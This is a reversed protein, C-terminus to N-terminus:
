VDRDLPNAVYKYQYDVVGTSPVDTPPIDIILDPEGLAGWVSQPGAIGQLPDDGEGRPAGADIWSVLSQLQERSLSRDNAWHGVQPDAHWPPMRKNMLVERIMLSFGRVMDYGTMAWPGIGGERHCSVCNDALIPAVTDAYSIQAGDHATYVIDCGRATTQPVEISEGAAMANLAAKLGADADGRYALTWDTTDVVLAEGARNLGLTRGVLQADDVLVPVAADLAAAASRSDTPSIAFFQVNEHQRQLEPLAALPARGTACTSDQVLLVVARKHTFYHLHHSAGADDFLRFDAVREAPTLALAGHTVWITAATLLGQKIANM